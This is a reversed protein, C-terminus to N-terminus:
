QAVPLKSTGFEAPLVRNTNVNKIEITMFSTQGDLQVATLVIFGSGPFVVGFTRYIQFLLTNPNQTEPVVLHQPFRLCYQLM